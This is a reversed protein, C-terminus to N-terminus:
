SRPGEDAFRRQSDCKQFANMSALVCDRIVIRVLPQGCVQGTSHQEEEAESAAASVLVFRRSLASSYSSRINSTGPWMASVVICFTSVDLPIQQMRCGKLYGAVVHM